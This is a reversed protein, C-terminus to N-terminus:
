KILCGIAQELVEKDIFKTRREFRVVGRESVCETYTIRFKLEVPDAVIEINPYKEFFTSCSGFPNM